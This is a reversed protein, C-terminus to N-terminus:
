EGVHERPEIKDREKQQANRSAQDFYEVMDEHERRSTEVRQRPAPQGLSASIGGIQSSMGRGAYSYACMAFGIPIMPLGVLFCTVLIKNAGADSSLAYIVNFGGVLAGLVGLGMVIQGIVRLVKRINSSKRTTPSMSIGSDTYAGDHGSGPCAGLPTVQASVRLDHIFLTGRGAGRAGRAFDATDNRTEADWARGVQARQAKAPRPVWTEYM